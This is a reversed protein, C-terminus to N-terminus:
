ILVLVAPLCGHYIPHQDIQLTIMYAHSHLEM